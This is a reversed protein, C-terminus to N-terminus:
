VCLSDCLHLHKQNILVTGVCHVTVTLCYVYVSMYIVCLGDCLHLYKQHILVTGVCTVTVAVCCVYVSVHLHEAEEWPGNNDQSAKSTSTKTRGSAIGVVDTAVGYFSQFMVLLQQANKPTTSVNTRIAPGEYQPVASASVSTGGVSFGTSDFIGVQFRSYTVFCSGMSQRSGSINTKRM